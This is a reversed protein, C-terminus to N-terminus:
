VRNTKHWMTDLRGNMKYFIDSNTTDQQEVEIDEGMDVQMNLARSPSEDAKCEKLYTIRQENVGVQRMLVHFLHHHHYHM